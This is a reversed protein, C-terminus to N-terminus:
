QIIIFFPLSFILALEQSVIKLLSKHLRLLPTFGIVPFYFKSITERVSLLSHLIISTDLM